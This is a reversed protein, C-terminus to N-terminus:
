KVKYDQYENVVKQAASEKIENVLEAKAIEKHEFVADTVAQKKPEQQALFDDMYKVPWRKYIPHMCYKFSIIEINKGRNKMRNVLPMYDYDGSVLIFTDYKDTYDMSIVTLYVDVGSQKWENTISNKTTQKVYLEFGCKKVHAFFNQMTSNEKQSANFYAAVSVKRDGAIWKKLNSFDIRRGKLGYFINAGDVFIGVKEEKVKDTKKQKPM